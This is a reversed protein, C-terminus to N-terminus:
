VHARGIKASAHRDNAVRFIMRSRGDQVPESTRTFVNRLSNGTTLKNSTTEIGANLWALNLGSPEKQITPAAGVPNESNPPIFRFPLRNRRNGEWPKCSM